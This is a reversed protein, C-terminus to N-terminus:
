CARRDPLALNAKLTRVLEKGAANTVVDSHSLDVVALRVDVWGQLGLKFNKRFRTTRAARKADDDVADAIVVLSLYSSMHNPQPQVKRLAEDKMFAVLGALTAADLHQEVHLFLYEHTDVEWLKARKVLVYQEGHSHFEAYGAFTRGAFEHNRSVDFWAEHAALLRELMLQKADLDREAQSANHADTGAAEAVATERAANESDPASSRAGASNVDSNMQPGTEDSEVVRRTM